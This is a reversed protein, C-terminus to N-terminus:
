FLELYLLAAGLLAARKGLVGKLVTVSLSQRFYEGIYTNCAALRFM